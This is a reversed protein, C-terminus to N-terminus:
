LEEGTLNEYVQRLVDKCIKLNKAEIGKQAEKHVADIIAEVDQCRAKGENTLYIMNQRRDRKDPVRVALGHKELVDIIRTTRTKDGEDVFMDTIQQQSMGERYLLNMLLIAHELNLGIGEETLRQNARRRAAKFTMGLIRGLKDPLRKNDPTM